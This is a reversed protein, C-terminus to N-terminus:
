KIKLFKVCENVIWQLYYCHPEQNAKTNIEAGIKEYISLLVHLAEHAIISSNANKIIFAVHIEDRIIFVSAVSEPNSDIGWKQWLNNDYDEKTKYKHIKLTWKEYIPFKISKTNM